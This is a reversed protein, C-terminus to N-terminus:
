LISMNYINISNNFSNKFPNMENLKYINYNQQM